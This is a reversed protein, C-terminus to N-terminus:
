ENSLEEVLEGCSRGAPQYAPRLKSLLELFAPNDALSFPLGGIAIARLLLTDYEHAQVKSVPASDFMSPLTAQRRRKQPPGSLELTTSRKAVVEQLEQKCADTAKSCHLLHKEQAGGRSQIVFKCFKCAGRLREKQDAENVKPVRIFWKWLRGELPRGRGKSPQKSNAKDAVLPHDDDSGDSVLPCDEADEGTQPEM